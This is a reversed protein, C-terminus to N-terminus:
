YPSDGGGDGLACDGDTFTIERTATIPVGDVDLVPNHDSQVLVAELQVLGGDGYVTEDDGPDFLCYAAPCLEYGPQDALDGSATALPYYLHVHGFGPTVEPMVLPDVLTFGDVTFIVYGCGDVAGEPGPSVFTITPTDDDTEDDKDEAVPPDYPPPACAVAHLLLIVSM